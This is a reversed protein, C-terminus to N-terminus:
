ALTGFYRAAADQDRPNKSFQSKLQTRAAAAPDRSIRAGPNAMQPAARVRKVAESGQAQLQAYRSADRLVLMFRHDFINSIEADSFGLNRAYSSLESRAAQFKTNDRWEPVADLMKDREAALRQPLQKQAEAQLQQQQAQVQGLHNQIANARNQFDQNAVAWRAPDETRMRNWDIGQFEALLQQHALDGLAKAQTLQQDLQAKSAQAQTEFARQQDALAQSKQTVHADTQYARLVDALKVQSTKGDVKVTVPLEYFSDAAVNAKQLYDELNVYEPGEDAETAAVEPEAVVAKPDPAPQPTVRTESPTQAPESATAAQGQAPDPKGDPNFAGATWLNDFHSEAKAVDSVGNFPNVGTPNSGADLSM